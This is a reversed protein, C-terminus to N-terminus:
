FVLFVMKELQKEINETMEQIKIENEKEWKGVSEEIEKTQEAIREDLGELDLNISEDVKVDIGDAWEELDDLWQDAQKRTVQTNYKDNQKKLYADPNKRYEDGDFDADKGFPSPPIDELNLGDIIGSVMNDINLNLDSLDINFGEMNLDFDKMDFDVQFDEMDFHHGSKSEIIIKNGNETAKFDWEGFLEDTKEDAELTFTVEVENKDWTEFKVNTHTTNVHINVEENVTFKETHKKATQANVTTLFFCTIALFNFIKLHIRVM